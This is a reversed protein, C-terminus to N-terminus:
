KNTRRCAREYERDRLTRRRVKGTLTMPLDTIYEVARPYKYPATFAKVHEQLERTLGDDGKHGSRLVVFAKVVEGRLEDPSGVVACM